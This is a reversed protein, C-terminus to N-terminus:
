AHRLAQKRAPRLRDRMVRRRLWFREWATAHLRGQEVALLTTARALTEQYGQRVLADVLRAPKARCGFLGAAEEVESVYCPKGVVTIVEEERGQAEQM